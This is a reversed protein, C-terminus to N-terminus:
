GDDDDDLDVNVEVDVAVSAVMTAHYHASPIDLTGM